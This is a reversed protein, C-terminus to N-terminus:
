ESTQTLLISEGMCSTTTVSRCLSSYPFGDEPAPSLLSCVGGGHPYGSADVAVGRARPALTAIVHPPLKSGQQHHPRMLLSVRLCYTTRRCDWGCWDLHAYVRFRPQRRARSTWSSMLACTWATGARFSAASSATHSSCALIHAIFLRLRRSATSIM